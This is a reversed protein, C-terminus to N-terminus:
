PQTKCNLSTRVLTLSLVLGSLGAAATIGVITATEEVFIATVNCSAALLKADSLTPVDSKIQCVPLLLTLSLHTGFCSIASWFVYLTGMAFIFIQPTKVM